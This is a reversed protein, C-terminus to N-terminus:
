LSIFFSFFFMGASHLPVLSLWTGAALPLSGILLLSAELHDACHQNLPFVRTRSVLVRASKTSFCFHAHPPSSHPNCIFAPWSSSVQLLRHLPPHPLSLQLRLGSHLQTVQPPNVLGAWIAPHFRWRWGAGVGDSTSTRAGGVSRHKTDCRRISDRTIHSHHMKSHLLSAFHSSAKQLHCCHRCWVLLPFPFVWVATLALNETQIFGFIWKFLLTEFLFGRTQEKM